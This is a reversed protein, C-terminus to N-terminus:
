STLRDEIETSGDCRAGSPVNPRLTTACLVKCDRVTSPCTLAETQPRHLHRRSPLRPTLNLFRPRSLGTEPVGFVALRGLGLPGM